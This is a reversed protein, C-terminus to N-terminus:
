LEKVLLDELVSEAEFHESCLAATKRPIMDRNFKSLKKLYHFFLPFSLSDKDRRGQKNNCGYAICTSMIIDFQVNPSLYSEGQETYSFMVSCLSHTVDGLELRQRSDQQRIPKNYCM